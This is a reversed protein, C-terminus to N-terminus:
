KRMEAKLERSFAMSTQLRMSAFKPYTKKFFGLSKFTLPQVKDFVVTLLCPIIFNLLFVAEEKRDRAM